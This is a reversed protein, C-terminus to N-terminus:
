KKLYKYKYELVKTWYEGWAQHSCSNLRYGDVTLRTKTEHKKVIEHNLMLELSRFTKVALATTRTKIMPVNTLDHLDGERREARKYLGCRYTERRMYLTESTLRDSPSRRHIIIRDSSSEKGPGVNTM